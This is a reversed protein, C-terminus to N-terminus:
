RDMEPVKLAALKSELSAALADLKEATGDSTVETSQTEGSTSVAMSERPTHTHTHTHLIVINLVRLLMCLRLRM